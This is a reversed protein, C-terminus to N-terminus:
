IRIKYQNVNKLFIRGNRSNRFHSYRLNYSINAYYFICFFSPGSFHFVPIIKLEKDGSFIAKCQIFMKKFTQKKMVAQIVLAFIRNEGWLVAVCLLDSSVPQLSGSYEQAPFTKPEGYAESGINQCRLCLYHLHVVHSFTFEDAALWDDKYRYFFM